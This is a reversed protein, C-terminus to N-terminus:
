LSLASTAQENETTALPQGMTMGAIYEAVISGMALKASEALDVSGKYQTYNMLMGAAYDLLMLCTFNFIQENTIFSKLTKLMDKLMLDFVAASASYQVIRKMRFKNNLYYDVATAGAVDAVLTKMADKESTVFYDLQTQIGGTSGGALQSM